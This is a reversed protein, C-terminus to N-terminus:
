RALEHDFVTLELWVRVHDTSRLLWAAFGTQACASRSTTGSARSWNGTRACFRTRRSQWVCGGMVLVCVRNCGVDAEQELTEADLAQLSLGYMFM